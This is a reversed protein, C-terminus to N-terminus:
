VLGHHTSLLKYEIIDRVVEILYALRSPLIQCRWRLSRHKLSASHISPNRLEFWEVMVKFNISNLVIKPRFRHHSCLGPSAIIVVMLLPRVVSMVVRKAAVMLVM